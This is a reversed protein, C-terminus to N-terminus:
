SYRDIPSSVHRLNTFEMNKMRACGFIREPLHDESTGELLFGMDVVLTKAYGLSLRIVGTAVPSSGCDLIVEFFRDSKVYLQRLKKGMIAPTSGVAKRVIFNGEVIQPILKFTADRFEDSDGFLFQNCLKSSPTGDSGDITRMDDIAYYFVGHYFPPGPLAINVVFIFPPMESELGLAKLEKEKKLALQVRETPHMTFGSYMPEDVSVLDVTVLRGISSGANFKQKDILYDAGRVRFSNSDPEAWMTQILCPPRRDLSGLNSSRTSENGAFSFDYNVVDENLTEDATDVSSNRVLGDHLSNRIRDMNFSVQRRKKPIITTPTAEVFRDLDIADRIDLLQLLASIGFADGYTQKSCCSYPTTPVWGRPDVQVTATMMSQLPLLQTKAKRRSLKKLPAISYCAHMEGRVYGVKPPADAHDVSEYCVVYTGDQELRWYRYLVFDRSTSWLPFLYLPRFFLRIIDTHEDISEIVEFSARLEMELDYRGYSMLCLFADLPSTDLVMSAKLVSCPLEDLSMNNYRDVNDERYIRLGQFGSGVVSLLGGELLRWHSKEFVDSPSARISRESNPRSHVLPFLAARAKADSHAFYQGWTSKKVSESELATALISQWHKATEYDDSSIVLVKKIEGSKNWADMAASGGGAAGAVGLAVVGAILSMGATMVTVGIAAGAAAAYKTGLLVKEKTKKKTIRRNAEYQNMLYDQEDLEDDSHSRKINNTIPTITSQNEASPGTQPVPTGDLEVLEPVVTPVNDTATRRHPRKRLGDVSQARNLGLPNKAKPFLLNRGSPKQPSAGSSPEASHTRRLPIRKRFPSKPFQRAPNQTATEVLPDGQTSVGLSSEDGISSDDNDDETHSSNNSNTPAFAIRFCYIPKKQHKEVYLDSIDCSDDLKFSGRCKSSKKKGYELTNDAYFEFYRTHYYKQSLRAAQKLM